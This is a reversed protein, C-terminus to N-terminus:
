VNGKIAELDEIVECLRQLRVPVNAHGREYRCMASRHSYGLRKAADAQSYGLRSRWDILDKGSWKSM